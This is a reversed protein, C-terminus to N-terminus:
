PWESAPLAGRASDQTRRRAQRTGEAVSRAFEAMRREERACVIADVLRYVGYGVGVVAVLILLALLVTDGGYEAPRRAARSAAM